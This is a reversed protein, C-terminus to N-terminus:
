KKLCYKEQLKLAFKTLHVFTKIYEYIYGEFLWVNVCVIFLYSYSPSLIFHFLFYFLPREEQKGKVIYTLRLCTMLEVTM